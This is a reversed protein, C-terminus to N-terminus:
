NLSSPSVIWLLNPFFITFFFGSRSVAPFEFKLYVKEPFFVGVGWSVTLIRVFIHGGTLCGIFDEHVVFGM